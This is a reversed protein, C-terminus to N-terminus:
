SCLRHDLRVATAKDREGVLECAFIQLELENRLQLFEPLDPGIIQLVECCLISEPEPGDRAMLIPHVTGAM